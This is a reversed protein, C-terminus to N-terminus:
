LGQERRCLIVWQQIVWAQLTPSLLPFINFTWQCPRWTGLNQGRWRLWSVGLWCQRGRKMILSRGPAGHHTQLIYSRPRGKNRTGPQQEGFVHGYMICSSILCVNLPFFTSVSCLLTPSLRSLFLCFDACESTYSHTAWNQLHSFFHSMSNAM